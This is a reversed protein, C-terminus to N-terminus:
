SLLNQLAKLVDEYDPEQTIEPVIQRYVVRGEPDVVFITRALLGALPGEQILVGYARGFARDRYDSAVTLNDIGETTCFRQAAFPLDMSIVVADVDMQALKENFTRTETACVPTDLSPVTILVQVKGRAGGVVITELDRSVVPVEPAADGVRVERDGGVRVPQGKLMVEM